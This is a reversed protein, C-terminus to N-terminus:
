TKNPPLEEHVDARPFSFAFGFEDASVGEFWMDGGMLKTLKYTM